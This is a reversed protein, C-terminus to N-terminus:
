LYQTTLHPSSAYALINRVCYHVNWNLLLQLNKSLQVVLHKEYRVGRLPILWEM